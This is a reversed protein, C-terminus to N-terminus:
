GQDAHNFRDGDVEADISWGTSDSPRSHLTVDGDSYNLQADRGDDSTSASWNDCGTGLADIFDNLWGM